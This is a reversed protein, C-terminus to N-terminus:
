MVEDVLGYVLAEEANLWLDRKLLKELDKKSIDTHKLYVDKIMAM